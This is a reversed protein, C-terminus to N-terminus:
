VTKQCSEPKADVIDAEGVEVVEVRRFFKRSDEVGPIPEECRQVRSSCALEEYEPHRRCLPRRKNLAVSSFRNSSERPVNSQANKTM